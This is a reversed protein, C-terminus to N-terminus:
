FGVSVGVSVAREKIDQASRSVGATLAVNKAVPYAYSAFTVTQKTRDGSQTSGARTKVGAMAYGGLVPTGINAGILGYTYPESAGNKTNDRALGVFPTVTFQSVSYNKGVTGELSNFLGTGDDRRSTRSQLGYQLGNIEKGARVYQVTSKASDVRDTVHEVAVSVFDAASAAFSLTAMLALAIKKM